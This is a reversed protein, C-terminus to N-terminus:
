MFPQNKHNKMYTFICDDWPHITHTYLPFRFSVGRLPSGGGPFLATDQRNLWCRDRKYYLRFNGSLHYIRLISWGLYLWLAAACDIEGDPIALTKPSADDFSLRWSAHHWNLIPPSRVDSASSSFPNEVKMPQREMDLVGQWREMNTEVSSTWQAGGGHQPVWKMLSNDLEVLCQCVKGFHSIWCVKSQYSIMYFSDLSPHQHKHHSQHRHVDSNSAELCQKSNHNESFIRACSKIM